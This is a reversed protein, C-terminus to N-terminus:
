ESCRASMRVQIRESRSMMSRVALTITVPEPWYIRRLRRQLNCRLSRAAGPCESRARNKKAPIPRTAAALYTGM